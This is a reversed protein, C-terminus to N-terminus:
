AQTDSDMRALVKGEQNFSLLVMKVVIQGDTFTVTITVADGPLQSYDTVKHDFLYGIAETPEWRAQFARRDETDHYFVTIKPGRQLYTTPSIRYISVVLRSNEPDDPNEYTMEYAYDHIDMSLGQFYRDKIDKFYGENWLEDFLGHNAYNLLSFPATFSCILDQENWTDVVRNYYTLRGSKSEYTVKKIHDAEVLFSSSGSGSVGYTYTTKGSEDVSGAGNDQQIQLDPLEVWADATIEAREENDATGGVGLLMFDHAESEAFGPSDSTKAGGPAAAQNLSSGPTQSQTGPDKGILSKGTYLIVFLLTLAAAVSFVVRGYGIMAKNEYKELVPKEMNSLRDAIKEWIGDPARFSECRCIRNEAMTKKM